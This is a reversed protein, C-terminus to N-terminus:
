VRWSYSHAMTVMDSSRRVRWTFGAEALTRGTLILRLANDGVVFINEKGRWAWLSYM